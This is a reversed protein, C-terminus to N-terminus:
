AIELITEDKDIKNPNSLLTNQLSEKLLKCSAEFTVFTIGGGIAGGILPISKKFFGAFVEKTMKKGFWKAVERVIPYITGKTLAANLLKKEVGTALAKSIAKIANNASASGYMVGLCIILINMTESDLHQENDEVNLEPFGYLYLLKQTARLMYGYYQIIDAPITAAMAVGGPAGLAASIGSVFNREYKIVETAIKDVENQTINAHAPNFAIADEIVETPYNKSLEAKLFNARNIKVGPTKIGKIIIDEIDIEGNGNEDIASIALDRSKAALDTTSKVLNKTTDSITETTSQVLDKASNSISESTSQVFNKASDGFTEATTEILNKTTDSITESASKVLNKTKDGISKSANGLGEVFKAGNNTNFKM